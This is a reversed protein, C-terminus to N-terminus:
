KKAGITLGLWDAWNVWGKVNYASPPWVPIDEPCEESSNRYDEWEQISTLELTRAFSRASRFDRYSIVAPTYRDNLFDPWNLWGKTEYIEDPNLPIDHPLKPKNNGNENEVRIFNQWDQQNSLNLKRCYARSHEFTRYTSRLEKSRQTGLFDDFGQWGNGKYIKDVRSPIDQPKPPKGSLEGKAFRSWEDKNRLKLDRAFEKAEEFPRYNIKRGM